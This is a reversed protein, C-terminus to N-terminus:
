VSGFVLAHPLVVTLMAVAYFRPRVAGEIFTLVLHALFMATSLEFPIIAGTVDSFEVIIIDVSM